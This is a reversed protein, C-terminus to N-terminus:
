YDLNSRDLFEDLYKQITREPPADMMPSYVMGDERLLFDPVTEKTHCDILGLMIEVQEETLEVVFKKM